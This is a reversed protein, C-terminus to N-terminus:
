QGSKSTRTPKAAQTVPKNIVVGQALTAGTSFITAGASLVGAQGISKRQRNIRDLTIRTNSRDVLRDISAQEADSLSVNALSGGSVGAAAFAARQAGLVAVLRRKRAVERDKFALKEQRAALDLEVQQAGALKVSASAGAVAATSALFGAPGAIATSGIVFLAALINGPDTSAKIFDGM